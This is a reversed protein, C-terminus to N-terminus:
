FVAGLPDGTVPGIGIRAVRFVEWLRRGGHFHSCIDSRRRNVMTPQWSTPDPTLGAIRPPRAIPRYTLRVPGPDGSMVDPSWSAVDEDITVVVVADVAAANDICWNIKIRANVGLALVGVRWRHHDTWSHKDAM